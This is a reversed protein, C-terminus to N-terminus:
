PSDSMTMLLQARGSIRAGDQPERVEAESVARYGGGLRSIRRNGRLTMHEVCRSETAMAQPDFRVRRLAVSSSPSSRGAASVIAGGGVVAGELLTGSASPAGSGGCVSSGGGGCVSSGGGIISSGAVSALEEDEDSGYGRVAPEEPMFTIRGRTTATAEDTQTEIVTVM